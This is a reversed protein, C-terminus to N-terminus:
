NKDVDFTPVKTPTDFDIKFSTDSSNDSKPTILNSNETTKEPSIEGMLEKHTEKNYCVRCVPKYSEIGGILVEDTNNVTRLTFPADENCFYCISQLNIIKECKPFINLISEFSERKYNANLASIVINKGKNALDECVSMLDPFFQGEDIGIVDHEDLISKVESLKTCKIAPYTFKDHTTVNCENEFSYRNDFSFKVVITKQKKVNFRRILKILESSKGSFMPGLILQIGGYKKQM